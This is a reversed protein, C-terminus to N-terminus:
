SVPASAIHAVRPKVVRLYDSTKIAISSDLRGANFYMAMLDANRTM